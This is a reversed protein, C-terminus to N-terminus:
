IGLLAVATLTDFLASLVHFRSLALGGGERSFHHRCFHGHHNLPRRRSIQHSYDRSRRIRPAAADTGGGDTGGVFIGESYKFLFVSFVFACLKAREGNEVTAGDVMMTILAGSANPPIENHPASTWFNSSPSAKEGEPSKHCPRIKLRVSRHLPSRLPSFPFWNGFESCTAITNRRWCCSRFKGIGEQIPKIPPLILFQM